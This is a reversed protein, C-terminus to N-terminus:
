AWSIMSSKLYLEMCDTLIEIFLYLITNYVLIVITLEIYEEGSFMSIIVYDFCIMSQDTFESEDELDKGDDRYYYFASSFGYEEYSSNCFCNLYPSM